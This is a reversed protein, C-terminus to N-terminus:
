KRSLGRMSAYRFFARALEWVHEPVLKRALGSGDGGSLTGVPVPGGERKNQM